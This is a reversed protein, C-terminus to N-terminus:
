LKSRFDTLLDIEKFYIMLLENLYEESMGMHRGVQLFRIIEETNLGDSGSLQLAGYLLGGNIRDGFVDRQEKIYKDFEIETMNSGIEVCELAIDKSILNWAEMHNGMLQKIDNTLCNKASAIYAIVYCADKGLMEREKISHTDEVVVDRWSSIAVYALNLLGAPKDAWLQLIKAVDGHKSKSM